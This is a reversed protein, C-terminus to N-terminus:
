GAASRIGPCKFDPDLVLGPSCWATDPPSLLASGEWAFQPTDPPVVKQLTGAALQFVGEVHSTNLEDAVFAASSFVVQVLRWQQGHQLSKAYENRTLHFTGRTTPGAAKVEIRDISTGRVEIDYGYSDSIQSVRAPRHGARQLAALVVLEAADGVRKRIEEQDQQDLQAYADLLIRDLEPELWLLARLDEAPIYARTVSGASVALRLWPPPAAALLIRAVDQLTM